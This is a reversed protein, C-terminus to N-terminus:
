MMWILLGSRSDAAATVHDRLRPFDHMLEEHLRARSRSAGYIRQARMTAPVLRTALAAVDTGTLYTAFASTAAASVIRARGYGLDRGIETGGCLLTAAPLEGGDATSSFAFHLTHWSKHLDLVPPAAAIVVGRKQALRQAIRAKATRHHSAFLPDIRGAAEREAFIREQAVLEALTFDDNDAGGGQIDALAVGDRRYGAQDIESAHKIYLCLGMASGLSCAPATRLITLTALKRCLM